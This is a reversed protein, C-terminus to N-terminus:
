YLFGVRGREPQGVLCDAFQEPDAIPLFSLLPHSPFLHPNGM